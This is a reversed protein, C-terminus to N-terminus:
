CTTSCAASLTIPTTASARRGRRGRLHRHRPQRSPRTAPWSRRPGANTEHRRPRRRLQRRLDGDHARRYPKQDYSVRAGHLGQVRHRLAAPSPWRRDGSAPAPRPPSGSSARRKTTTPRRRRRHQAQPQRRPQVGEYKYYIQAPTDLAKELRRARYLPTPRWQRYIDRVAEPIEIYREQSVEQKILEMPFSRRWTPRARDAAHHRPAPRRCRSRCTPRSTIGLRRSGSRTSCTSSRTAWTHEEQICHVSRNHHPASRPTRQDLAFLGPIPRCLTM